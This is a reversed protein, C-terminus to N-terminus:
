GCNIAYGSEAATVAGGVLHHRPFFFRRPQYPDVSKELRKDIVFRFDRDIGSHQSGFLDYGVLITDRGCDVLKREIYVLPTRVPDLLKHDRHRTMTVRHPKALRRETRLRGGASSVFTM